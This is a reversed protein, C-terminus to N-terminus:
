PAAPNDGRVLTAQKVLAPVASVSALSGQLPEGKAGKVQTWRASAPGGLAVVNTWFEPSRFLVAAGIVHATIKGNEVEYMRGGGRTEAVGNLCQFDSSVLGAALVYGKKMSRVMEVFSPGNADPVLTFNPLHQLPVVADMEGARGMYGASTANSMAAGGPMSRLWGAGERSTQYNVLRGDKVLEVERPVVGESDWKVTAAAGPTSRDARITVQPAAVASGLYTEIDPGLYSTGVGNAHEGLALDLQTAPGLTQGLIRGMTQWDILLDYKGVEVPKLPLAKAWKIEEIWREFITEVPLRLYNEWGQTPYLSPLLGTDYAVYDFSSLPARPLTNELFHSVDRSPEGHHFTQVTYSGESTANIVDTRGLHFGDGGVSFGTQRDGDGLGYRHRFLQTYHRSAGRCADIVEGVDVEYPLIEAPTTWDGNREIQPHPALEMSRTPRSAGFGAAHTAADIAVRVVDADSLWPASAFGWYGNNLARVGIHYNCIEGQYKQHKYFREVALSLHVEAYSAKHAAAADLAKQVLGKLEASRALGRLDVLGQDRRQALDLAGSAKAITPHLLPAGAALLPM